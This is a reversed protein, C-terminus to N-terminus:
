NVGWALHVVMPQLGNCSLSIAMAGAVRLLCGVLVEPAGAAAMGGGGSRKFPRISSRRSWKAASVLRVGTSRAARAAKM